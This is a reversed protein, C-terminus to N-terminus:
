KKGKKKKFLKSKKNIKTTSTLCIIQTQRQIKRKWVENKIMVFIKENQLAEKKSRNFSNESKLRVYKM